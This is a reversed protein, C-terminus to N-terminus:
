IPLEYPSDSNLAKDRAETLTFTNLTGLGMQRANGNLMYRFLWSKTGAKTVQLYLGGGDAYRGRKKATAIGRPSLRHLTRQPMKKGVFCGM